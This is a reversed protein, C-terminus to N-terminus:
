ITHPYYRERTGDKSENTFHLAAGAEALAAGPTTPPALRHHQQHRM